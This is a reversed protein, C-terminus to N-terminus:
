ERVRQGLDYPLPNGYRHDTASVAQERLFALLEVRGSSVVPGRFLGIEPRNNIAQNVEDEVEGVARVRDVSISALRSAFALASERVLPVSSCVRVFSDWEPEPPLSVEVRAGAVAGAHLVRELQVATANGSVRVIVHCPRYRLVNIEGDLDHHDHMAVFTSMERLDSEQAAELWAKAGDATTPSPVTDPDSPQMLHVLYNPGGAKATQGIASRKWGGFPQRSVIAGTIGRNVYLNGAEVASLWFSIEEPDLSHLGATLGYPTGNQMRIADELTDAHMLGTIPGFFETLHYDSGERVGGRVGPSYLRGSSDLPEPQALWREGEGLESLGRALKEEPVGIVPGMVARSDQPYGVHLSRVADALQRQFRRSTTVSGVTIILSAASCKQGAHGFASAVIDKVALDLDAHPTVIIANKGSTEAKIMVRPNFELFLRATEYAGTLIIQDIREDSLLAKGVANEPVDMLRLVSRPIGARHLLGVLYAGTRRAQPAPKVIVASGTVLASLMSGCPIAIPFNWPPTVVTLTRPTFTVDSLSALKEMCDAYYLAFDIAESVEPDGQELMKGTESAAVELLEARHEALVVAARRLLRARESVDRAAWQRQAAVAEGIQERVEEVTSVRAGDAEAIGLTSTPIRGRIDAAWKQNAPTSIDTDPTNVFAGPRAPLTLSGLEVGERAEAARDGVRHTLPAGQSLSLKLSRSFREAEREFLAPSSGIDALASMFNGSSGNEELRRVLYSVAVDFERPKVIPVYLRIPGVTRAIVKQQAPAMGALMEFEVKPSPDEVSAFAIGRAEMLEVAYAIDFLNHGAIGLHIFPLTDANLAERLVRKYHADTEEKSHFTALPWGHVSADVTEMALNAGKVLRIKLPAGGREVRERAFDRLKEFARLADPLYAQLVIGARLSRLEKRAMLSEFVELTLELDHFEEMDLNIFTPRAQMAALRYLPLLREVIVERTDRAGWLSLHDVIASVKISCYDVDERAILSRVGALRANAERAGLVAEGLMNVNVRVGEDRYRRLSKALPGPRADLILHSVMRRMLAQATSVVPGPAVHSAAAGVKVAARLSLPLFSPPKAALTRLHVAAARPDEPRVVRDVFGVTFALGHEDRLMHALLNAQASSDEQQSQQVWTHVRQRVRTLTEDVKEQSPEHSM